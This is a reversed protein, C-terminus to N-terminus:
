RLEASMRKLELTLWNQYLRSEKNGVYTRNSLYGGSYVFVTPYHLGLGRALLENSNAPKVDRTEVGKKGIWESTASPQAKGDVLITLPLEKAHAASKIEHLAAVSLPMYPSWVYIIGTKNKKLLEALDDDSFTQPMAALPKPVAQTTSRPKCLEATKWTTTTQEGTKLNADILSAGGDEGWVTYARYTRTDRHSVADHAGSQPFVTLPFWTMKLLSHDLRAQVERNCPLSALENALLNVNAAHAPMAFALFGFSIKQILAAHRKM